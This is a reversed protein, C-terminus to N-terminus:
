ETKAVPSLLGVERFGLREYLAKARVNARTVGLIIATWSTTGFEDRAIASILEHGSGRDRYLPKVFLEDVECVEGGYENLWSPVLFAYGAVTGDVELVLTSGRRPERRFM